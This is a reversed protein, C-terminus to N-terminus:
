PRDELTIVVPRHDSAILTEPLDIVQGRGEVVWPKLAPSVLLYDIRSYSEEKRYWHTWNEGRSDSAPVMEFITTQGRRSLAQLPRSKPVDNCDGVLLYRANSPDPFEALVRDRVATAEKARRLASSQDDSRDTFRSKLHVIFLTVTNKGLAFSVELMGRKVTEQTKFYDFKLDTHKKIARLERRSLVAVHRDADAGDVIEAFPYDLGERALDRQLEKLYPLTGMEELAIV